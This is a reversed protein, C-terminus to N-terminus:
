AHAVEEKVPLGEVKDYFALRYAATLGEITKGPKLLEEVTYNKRAIMDRLLQCQTEFDFGEFLERNSPPDGFPCEPDAAPDACSAGTLDDNGPIDIPHEEPAPLQQAPSAAPPGYIGLAQHIAATQAIRRIEPDSYDIRLRYRLMVFPKSLEQISYESKLSFMARIVRNRAGTEALQLMFKRKQRFDRDILYDRNEKKAHQAAIEERVIAMDINYSGVYQILRGDAKRIGGVAKYTCYKGHELEMYKSAAENWEIGGCQAIKALAVSSLRKGTTGKYVDKDNDDPSLQIVELVPEYIGHPDEFLVSPVLVNAKGERYKNLTEFVGNPTSM